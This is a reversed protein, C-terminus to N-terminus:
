RKNFEDEIEKCFKSFDNFIADQEEGDDDMEAIGTVVDDLTFPGVGGILTWTLHKATSDMIPPVEYNKVWWFLIADADCNFGHKKPLLRRLDQEIAIEKSTREM